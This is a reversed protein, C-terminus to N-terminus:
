HDHVHLAVPSGYIEHLLDTTLVDRPTGVHVHDRSMCLVMTAHRYVVSLDHSILLVTLDRERQLRHVLENLREQGPEDVGATPEDLLLVTPNGILAFAMLLRQFQGGSVAGIPLAATDAPLGVLALADTIADWSMAALSARAHLFDIGTIPVDRALDLHQPVYGIRADAAWRVGGDSPIAGLLARFLVTKGSGNPGVIALASGRPVRFSLNRFVPVGGFQVTLGEVKLIDDIASGLAPRPSADLPKLPLRRPM